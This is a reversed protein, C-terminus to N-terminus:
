LLRSLSARTSRAVSPRLTIEIPQASATAKIEANESECQRRTATAKIEATEPEFQACRGAEIEASDIECEAQTGAEIEADDMECQAQMAAEIEADDFECEAEMAAEIERKQNERPVPAEGTDKRDAFKVAIAGTGRDSAGNEVRNVFAEGRGSDEDRMRAYASTALEQSEDKRMRRLEAAARLISRELRQEYIAMRHLTADDGAFGSALVRAASPKHAALAEHRDRRAEFQARTMDHDSEYFGNRLERNMWNAQKAHAMQMAQADDEFQEEEAAALRILKWQANVIREVLMLEMVNQPRHHEILAERLEEFEEHTEGELVRRRSFLGHTIANQAVREKGAASKPGTSKAANLRNAARKRESVM